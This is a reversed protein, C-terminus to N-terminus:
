ENAELQPWPLERLKLDAPFLAYEDPHSARLFTSMGRLNRWLQKIFVPLGAAKCQQAVSRIHDLTETGPAGRRNDHGVILGGIGALYM